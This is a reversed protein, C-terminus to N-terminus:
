LCALLVAKAFHKKNEAHQWVRYQKGDIVEDPVEYDRKEPLCHICIADKKAMKIVEQTVKYPNCRKIKM